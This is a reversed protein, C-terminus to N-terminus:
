DKRRRVSEALKFSALLAATVLVLGILMLVAHGTSGTVGAHGPHAFLAFPLLSLVAAPVIKSM